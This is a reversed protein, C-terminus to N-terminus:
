GAYAPTYVHCGTSTEISEAQLVHPEFRRWRAAWRCMPQQSPIFDGPPVQQQMQQPYGQRFMQAQAQSRMRPIFVSLLVILTVAVAGGIVVGSIAGPTAWTTSTPAPPPAAALLGVAFGPFSVALANGIAPGAYGLINKLSPAIGQAARIAVNVTVGGGSQLLTRRMRAGGQATVSTISV